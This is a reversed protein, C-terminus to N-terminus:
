RGGIASGIQVSSIPMEATNSTANTALKQGARVTALVSGRFSRCAPRADAYVDPGEGPVIGDGKTHFARKAAAPCQYLRGTRRTTGVPGRSGIQKMALGELLVVASGLALM